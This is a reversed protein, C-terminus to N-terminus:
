RCHCSYANGMGMAKAGQEPIMFGSAFAQYSFLVTAACLISAQKIYKLYSM